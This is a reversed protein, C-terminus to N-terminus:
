FLLLFAHNRGHTKTTQWKKGSCGQFPRKRRLLILHNPPTILSGQTFFGTPEVRSKWGIPPATLHHISASFLLRIRAIRHHTAREARPSLLGHVPTTSAAQVERQEIGGCPMRVPEYLTGERERRYLWSETPTRRFRRVSACLSGCDTSVRSTPRFGTEARARLVSVRAHTSTAWALNHRPARGSSSAVDRCRAPHRPLICPPPTTPDRTTRVM